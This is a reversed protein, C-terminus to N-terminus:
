GHTQPHNNVSYKLTLNVYKQLSLCDIFRPEAPFITLACFWGLKSLMAPELSQTAWGQEDSEHKEFSFKQKFNIASKRESTQFLLTQNRRKELMELHGSVDRGSVRRGHRKGHLFSQMAVGKLSHVDQGVM